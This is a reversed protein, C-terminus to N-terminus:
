QIIANYGKLILPRNIIVSAADFTNVSGAKFILTSGNPAGIAAAEINHYPNVPSGDGFFLSGVFKTDLPAIYTVHDQGIPFYHDWTYWDAAGGWGLNMLFLRDPDTAKDYGLVVWMHGGGEAQQGSLALPRLWKIEDTMITLNTPNTIADTDYRFHNKVAQAVQSSNSSSGWFGFSMNVSVAVHQNFKAVEFDGAENPPDDHDDKLLSWDYTTGGFNAISYTEGPTLRTYLTDLASLYETSKNLITPDTKAEGLVSGDWYNRM